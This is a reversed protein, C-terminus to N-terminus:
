KVMNRIQEICGKLDKAGVVKQVTPKTCQEVIHPVAKGKSFVTVCEAHTLGWDNVSRCFRSISKSGGAVAPSM